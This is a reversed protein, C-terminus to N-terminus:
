CQVIRRRRSPHPSIVNSAIQLAPNMEKSTLKHFGRKMYVKKRMMKNAKRIVFTLKDDDENTSEETSSDDQIRKLATGKKKVQM